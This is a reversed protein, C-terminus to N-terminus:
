VFPGAYHALLIIDLSAVGDPALEQRQRELVQPSIRFFPSRRSPGDLPLCGTITVSWKGPGFVMAAGIGILQGARALALLEECKAVVEANVPAQKVATIFAGNLEDAM